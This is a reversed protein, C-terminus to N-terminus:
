RLNHINTIHKLCSIFYVQYQVYKVLAKGFCCIYSCILEICMYMRELELNWSDSFLELYIIEPWKLKM